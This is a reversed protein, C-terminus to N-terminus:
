GGDTRPYRDRGGTRPDREGGTRPNREGGIDIGCASSERERPGPMRARAPQKSGGACSLTKDYSIRWERDASKM